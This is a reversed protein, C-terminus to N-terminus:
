RYVRLTINCVSGFFTIKRDLPTCATRAIKEQQLWLSYWSCSYFVLQTNQVATRKAHPGAGEVGSSEHVTSRGICLRFPFLFGTVSTLVTTVLFVVTWGERQKATLLGYLVVLGTLIGALSWLVHFITFPPMDSLM